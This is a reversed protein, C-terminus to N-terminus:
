ECGFLEISVMLMEKLIELVVVLESSGNRVVLEAEFVSIERFM